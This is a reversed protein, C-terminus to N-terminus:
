AIMKENYSLCQLRAHKRSTGACTHYQGCALTVVHVGRMQEVERPRFKDLRDGHGLQGNDNRGFSFTKSELCAIVTHYYSCSLTFIHNSRLGRVVQVKSSHICHGDSARGWCISGFSVLRGDRLVVLTRESSTYSHIQTAASLPHCDVLNM